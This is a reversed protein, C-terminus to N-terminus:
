PSPQPPSPDDGKRRAAARKGESAGQAYSPRRNMMQKLAEIVDSAKRKDLFRLDSVKVHNWLFQRLHNVEDNGVYIGHWMAEIKRLQAPSAAYADRRGLDDYKKGRSGEGELPPGPHPHTSQKWGKAKFHNIVVIIQRDSLEAASRKGTLSELTDRYIDEGLGLDKKAIHIKALLQRAPM